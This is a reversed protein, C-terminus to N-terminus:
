VINQAINQVQLLSLASDAFVLSIAQSQSDSYYNSISVQDELGFARIVLNNENRSFDADALKVSEFVLKDIFADMRVSGDSIINKGHGAAFIYTDETNIGGELYDDGSGGIITDRGGFGYIKDDGNGGTLTDHGGWGQLLEGNHGGQVKLSVTKMAEQTLTKGSFEFDVSRNGSSQFYRSVTVTDESGYANVVLDNGLRSFVADKSHAAEFRLIDSFKNGYYSADAVTDHGHGRAFIYLDNSNIGGMLMDNGAGGILTDNGNSGRLTDDGDDGRLIKDQAAAM